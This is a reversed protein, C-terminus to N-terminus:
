WRVIAAVFRELAPPHQLLFLSPEILELESLLPRGEDDDMVDVRAYLLSAADVAALARRALAGDEEAIPRAESVSEEDDAYRPTKVVAHTLRGDIVVLAREGGHAVSPMFRQVMADREAVLEDFLAQGRAVDDRVVRHTRFSAASVAPKIVADSWGREDMLAHLDLRAGQDAWATPVIPVGREDLERLYSKHANWRVVPEANALRSERAARATWALFADVDRYYNWTSRLVCLDFRAPKADPDDWALLEARLGADALAGLLPAQDPDPEPLQRCTVVAVRKM